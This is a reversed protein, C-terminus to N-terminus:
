VSGLSLFLQDCSAHDDSTVHDFVDTIDDILRCSGTKKTRQEGDGRFIVKLKMKIESVLFLNTKFDLLTQM